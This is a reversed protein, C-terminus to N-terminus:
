PEGGATAILEGIMEAGRIRRAGLPLIGVDPVRQEPFHDGRRAALRPRSVEPPAKGTRRALRVGLRHRIAMLVPESRAVGPGVGPSSCTGACRTSWPAALAAALM